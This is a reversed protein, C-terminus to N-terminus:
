FLPAQGQGKGLYKLQSLRVRAADRSVRFQEAVLEILEYGVQSAIEIPYIVNVEAAFEGVCRVLHSKPMLFAGCAYGAQWEMWDYTPANLIGERKCVIINEQPDVSLLSLQDHDTEFLPAHFHVHGFEHTLTTRLRNERRDDEMLKISIQVTPKDGPHFETLGEVDSGFESLDAYPDLYGARQEILRTIDDTSIPFEVAGYLSQLFATIVQECEYDLEEPRYHPRLPFRGTKDSIYKVM